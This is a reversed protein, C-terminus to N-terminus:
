EKVFKGVEVTRENTVRVYYVGSPLNSIDVQTKSETIQSTIVRQGEINFISVNSEQTEGSLEVTIRDTAPNPYVCISPNILRLGPSIGTIIGHKYIAGGGTAAFGISDNVFNVSTFYISNEYLDWNWTQGGDNTSNISSVDLFSYYGATYGTDPSPFSMDVVFQLSDLATSDWSMGFDITKYLMGTYGSVYALGTPFTKISTLPCSEWCNFINQWSIWSNTTKLINCGTNGDSIALCTDKNFASVKQIAAHFGQCVIFSNGGKTTKLILGTDGSSPLPINDSASIWGTDSNIFCLSTLNLITNTTCPNWTNGGDTTKLFTGSEGCIFGTSSNVFTVDSLWKTTNTQIYEWSYGGNSTRILVGNYGVIFVHNVDLTFVKIFEAQDNNNYCQVWGQSLVTVPLLFMLIICILKM